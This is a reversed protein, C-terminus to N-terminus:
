QEGLKALTDLLTKGGGFLDNVGKFLSGVDTVTGTIKQLGTQGARQYTATKSGINLFNLAQDIYEKKSTQGRTWELYEKDLGLQKVTRPIAQAEINAANLGQMGGMYSIANGYSDQLAKGRWTNYPNSVTTQYTNM